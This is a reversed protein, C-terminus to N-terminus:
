RRRGAAGRRRTARQRGRGRRGGLEPAPVGVCPWPPGPRGRVCDSADGGVAGRARALRSRADLHGCLAARRRQGVPAVRRRLELRADRRAHGASAGGVRAARARRGRPRHDGAPGRPLSPRQRGPPAPPHRRARAPAGAAAAGPGAGRRGRRRARARGRGPRGRARLPLRGPVAPAPRRAARARAGQAGARPKRRRRRLARGGLRPAAPCGDAGRHRRRARVAAAM